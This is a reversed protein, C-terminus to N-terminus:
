DTAQTFDFKLECILNTNEIETLNNGVLIKDPLNESVKIEITYLKTQGVGIIIGSPNSGNSNSYNPNLTATLLGQSILASTTQNMGSIKAKNENKYGEVLNLKVPVTGQNKLKFSYGVTIGPYANGLNFEIATNDNILEMNLYESGMNTTIEENTGYYGSNFIELTKFQVDTAVVKLEGTSVNDTVMFNQNWAAYGVGMLMLSLIVVLIFIKSKKMYGGEVEGLIEVQEKTKRERKM